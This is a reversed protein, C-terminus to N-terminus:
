LLVGQVFGTPKSYTNNVTWQSSSFIVCNQPIDNFYVYRFTSRRGDKGNQNYNWTICGAEDMRHVAPLDILMYDQFDIVPNNLISRKKWDWYHRTYGVFYYQSTCYYWAGAAGNTKTEEFTVTSEDYTLYKEQLTMRTGSASTLIVDIGEKWDYRALAEDKTVNVTEDGDALTFAARYIKNAAIAHDEALKVRWDYWSSVIKIRTIGSM